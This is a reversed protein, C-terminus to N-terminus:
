DTSALISDCAVEHQRVHRPEILSPSPQTFKAPGVVYERLQDLLTAVRM